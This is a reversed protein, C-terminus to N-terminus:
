VAILMKTIEFWLLKRTSNSLIAETYKIQFIYYYKLVPFPWCQALHTPVSDDTHTFLKDLSRFLSNLMAVVAMPSSTAAMATFGVVVQGQCRWRGPGQGQGLKRSSRLQFGGAVNVKVEFKVWNGHLRRHRQLLRLRAPLVASGSRQREVLLVYTPGRVSPGVCVGAADHRRYNVVTVAASADSIFALKRRRLIRAANTTKGHLAPRLM